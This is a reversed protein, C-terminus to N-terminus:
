EFQTKGEVKTILPRSLPLLFNNFLSYDYFLSTPMKLGNFLEKIMENCHWLIRHAMISPMNIFTIQCPFFPGIKVICM